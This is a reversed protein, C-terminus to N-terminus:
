LGLVLNKSARTIGTYLLQKCQNVDGFGDNFFVVNDWESGQSRHCTIAYGYDFQQPKGDKSPEMMPHPEFWDLNCELLYFRAEPDHLPTIDLMITRDGYNLDEKLDIERAVYGMLGNVLPTVMRGYAMTEWDNKLCVLKEGLNPLGSYGHYRRIDENLQKRRKHRCCIVQDYQAMWEVKIQYMPVVLLNDGHSGYPIPRGERAQMAAWLVPNDAAQRHVNKLFADPTQLLRNDQGMVPPLQAPDGLVLLRVGFSMLDVLLKMSVMSVEDVVILKYDKPLSRALRFGAVKSGKLKTIPHTFTALIPEYILSHITQAPINKTNLVLAAKGTFTVFAVDDLDIDLAQMAYNVVTSKGTGAYGALTFVKKRHDNEFWEMLDTVADLQEDTLDIDAKTTM